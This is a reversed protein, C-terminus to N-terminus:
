FKDAVSILKSQLAIIKELSTLANEINLKNMVSTQESKINRIDGEISSDVWYRLKCSEFESEIRSTDIAFAAEFQSEAYPMSAFGTRSTLYTQKPTAQQLKVSSINSEYTSECLSLGRDRFSLLENYREKMFEIGDSLEQSAFKTREYAAKALDNQPFAEVPESEVVTTNNVSIPAAEAVPSPESVSITAASKTESQSTPTVESVKQPVQTKVTQTVTNAVPAAQSVEKPIDTDTNTETEVVVEEDEEEPNEIEQEVPEAAVKTEQINVVAYNKTVVVGIGGGVVFLGLALLVPIFAFGKNYNNNKM